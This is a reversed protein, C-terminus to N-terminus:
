GLQAEIIMGILKSLVVAAVAVALHKWIESFAPVGRQRALLYSLGALLFLGWLVALVVGLALPPLVVLLVFSLTVAARAVFNTLTARFARRTELRESEQYIHVSLSDTLNDAFGAILLGAAISARSAHVADLGIVLSVSGVIAATGGFSIGRLGPLIRRATTASALPPAM